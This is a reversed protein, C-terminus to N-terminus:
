RSWSRSPRRHRLTRRHHDLAHKWLRELAIDNPYPTAFKPMAQQERMSSEVWKYNKDPCKDKNHLYACEDFEIEFDNVFFGTLRSIAHELLEYPFFYFGCLDDNNAVEEEETVNFIMSYLDIPRASPCLTRGAETSKNYELFCMHGLDDGITTTNLAYYSTDAGIICEDADICKLELPQRALRATHAARDSVCHPIIKAADTEGGSCAYWNRPNHANPCIVREDMESIEKMWYAISHSGRPRLSTGFEDFSVMGDEWSNRLIFGGKSGSKVMFDDNYGVITMAHGGEIVLQGHQFYEGEMNYCPRTEVTCCPTGFNKDLPCPTCTDTGPKCVEEDFCPRYYYTSHLPVSWSMVHGKERLQQKITPIDYLSTFQTMEFTIPNGTALAEELNTCSSDDTYRIYPCVEWPVIHTKYVDRFYYLLPVEGGNASGWAVQDGPMDCLDKNKPDKCLELTTNAYAQESIKLFENEKLWGNALGQLRYQHEVVSLTGFDWCTGRWWQIKRPPVYPVAYKRISLQDVQGGMEDVRMSVRDMKDFTTDTTSRISNVDDRTQVTVALTAIMTGVLCVIGLVTLLSAITRKKQPASNLLGEGLGNM